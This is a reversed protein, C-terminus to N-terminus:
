QGSDFIPGRFEPERKEYPAFFECGEIELTQPTHKRKVSGQVKIVKWEKISVNKTQYNPQRSEDKTSRKKPIKLPDVTREDHRVDNKLVQMSVFSQKPSDSFDLHVPQLKRASLSTWEEFGKSNEAIETRPSQRTLENCENESLPERFEGLELDQSFPRGDLAKGANSNRKLSCWGSDSNTSESWQGDRSYARHSHLNANSEERLPDKESPFKDMRWFESDVEAREAHQEMTEEREFLEHGTSRRVDEKTPNPEQLQVDHNNRLLRGSDGLSQHSDAIGIRGDAKQSGQKSQLAKSARSKQLKNQCVREKGLQGNDKRLRETKTKKV